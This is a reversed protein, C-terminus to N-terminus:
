IITTGRHKVVESACQNAFEISQEIDSTQTYKVCLAAMFSDGAGSVDIVDMKQVPYLKGNYFCGEGGMTQIIKSKMNQEIFKKSRDFEYNNIKIFKANMAWTDLVKKTDLIVQPHSSCIYEIDDYLLFGKDYDSVIITEYDLSLKSLDIREITPATDVRMFMHNSSSHVYRNKIVEQWNLNTVIDCFVGLSEVNCFVNHAMGPTETRSLVELVPVPKDPALRSASCYSYVDLCSDGVILIKSKV